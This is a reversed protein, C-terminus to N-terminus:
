RRTAAQVFRERDFRPCTDALHYAFQEAVCQTNSSEDDPWLEAIIRALYAFHSRSMKPTKPWLGLSRRPEPQPQEEAEEQGCIFGPLSMM